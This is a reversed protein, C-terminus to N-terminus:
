EKVDFIVELNDKPKIKESKLKMSDNKKADNEKSPEENLSIAVIKNNIEILYHDM